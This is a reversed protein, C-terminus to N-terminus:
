PASQLSEPPVPRPREPLTRGLYTAVAAVDQPPLTSGRRIMRQLRRVWGTRTAGSNEVRRLDHCAVCHQEVLRKEPANPLSLHLLPPLAPAQEVPLTPAHASSAANPAREVAAATTPTTAPAQSWGALVCLTLPWLRAFSSRKPEFAKM